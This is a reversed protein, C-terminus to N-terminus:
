ADPDGPFPLEGSLDSHLDTGSELSAEKQKWGYVDTEVGTLIHKKRM